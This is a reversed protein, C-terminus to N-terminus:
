QLGIGPKEECTRRQYRHLRYISTGWTPPLHEAPLQLPSTPLSMVGHDSNSWILLTNSFFIVLFKVEHYLFAHADMGAANNLQSLLTRGM